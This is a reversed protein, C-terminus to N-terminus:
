DDCGKDELCGGTESNLVEDFQMMVRESSIAMVIAKVTSIEDDTLGVEDSQELYYHAWPICAVALSSALHTM